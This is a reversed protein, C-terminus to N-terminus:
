GTSLAPRARTPLRLSCVVQDASRWFNERRTLNGAALGGPQLLKFEESFHTRIEAVWQTVLGRPPLMPQTLNKVM